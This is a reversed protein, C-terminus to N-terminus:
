GTVLLAVIACVVLAFFIVMRGLSRFFFMFRHVRREGKYMLLLDRAMFTAAVVFVLVTGVSGGSAGSAVSAGRLLSVERAAFFLCVLILASLYVAYAALTVRPMVVDHRDNDNRETDPSLSSGGKDGPADPGGSASPDSAANKKM